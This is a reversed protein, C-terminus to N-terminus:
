DGKVKSLVALVVFLSFGALLIALISVLFVQQQSTLEFLREIFTILNEM